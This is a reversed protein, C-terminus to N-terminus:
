KNLANHFAKNYLRTVPIQAMKLHEPNLEMITEGYRDLLKTTKSDRSDIEWESGMLKFYKSEEFSGTVFLDTRPNAKYTPLTEKFDLYGPEYAPSSGDGFEGKSVQLRQISVIQSQLKKSSLVQELIKLPKIKKANKYQKLVVSNPSIIM